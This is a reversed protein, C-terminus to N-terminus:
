PTIRPRRTFRTDRQRVPPSNALVRARSVRDGSRQVSVVDGCQRSVGTLVDSRVARTWPSNKPASERTLGLAQRRNAHYRGVRLHKRHREARADLIKVTVPLLTYIVSTPVQLSHSSPQRPMFAPESRASWGKALPRTSPMRGRHWRHARHGQKGPPGAMRTDHLVIKSNRPDHHSQRAGNRASLPKDRKKGRALLTPSSRRGPPAAATSRGSNKKVAM